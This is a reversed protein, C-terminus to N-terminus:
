SFQLCLDHFTATKSRASWLLAFDLGFFRIIDNCPGALCLCLAFAAVPLLRQLDMGPYTGTAAPFEGISVQVLQGDMVFVLVMVVVGRIAAVPLVEAYVAMIVLM